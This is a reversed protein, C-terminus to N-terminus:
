PLTLLHHLHYGVAALGFFIALYGSAVMAWFLFEDGKRM